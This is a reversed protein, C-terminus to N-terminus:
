RKKCAPQEMQQIELASSMLQTLVNEVLAESCNLQKALRKGRALVRNEQPPDRYTIALERKCKGIAMAQGQRKAILRIIKEDIQAIRQRILKLQQRPKNPM